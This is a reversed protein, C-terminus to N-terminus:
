GGVHLVDRRGRTQCELSGTWSRECVSDARGPTTRCDAARGFRCHINAREARRSPAGGWPGRARGGTAVHCRGPHRGSRNRSWAPLLGRGIRAMPGRRCRRLASARLRCAASGRCALRGPRLVHPPMRVLGRTRSAGQADLDGGRAARGAATRCFASATGLRESPEGARNRARLALPDGSVGIHRGVSPRHSRFLTSSCDGYRVRVPRMPDHHSSSETWYRGGGLPQGRPRAAEQRALGFFLAMLPWDHRGRFGRRNPWNSRKRLRRRKQRRLADSRRRM